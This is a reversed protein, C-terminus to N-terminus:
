FPRYSSVTGGLQVNLPAVAGAAGAPYTCHLLLRMSSHAAVVGVITEILRLLEQESMGGRARHQPAETPVTRSERPVARSSLWPHPPGNRPLAKRDPRPRVEQTAM